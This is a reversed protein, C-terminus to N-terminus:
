PKKEKKIIETLLRKQSIKNNRFLAISMGEGRCNAIYNGVRIRTQIATSALGSRFGILAVFTLIKKHYVIGKLLNMVIAREVLDVNKFWTVGPTVQEPVSNQVINVSEKAKYIRPGGHKVSPFAKEYVQKLHALSLNVKYNSFPKDKIPRLSKILNVIFVETNEILENKISGIDDQIVEKIKRKTM